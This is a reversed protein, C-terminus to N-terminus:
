ARLFRELFVRDNPSSFLSLCWFPIGHLLVPSVLQVSYKFTIGYMAITQATVSSWSSKLLDKADLMHPHHVKALGAIGSTMEREKAEARLTSAVIM